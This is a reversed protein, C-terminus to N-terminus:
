VMSTAGKQTAQQGVDCWGHARQHGYDGPCLKALQRQLGRSATALVTPAMIPVPMGSCIDTRRLAGQDGRVFEFPQGMTLDTTQYLDEFDPDDLAASSWPSEVLARTGMGFLSQAMKSLRRFM